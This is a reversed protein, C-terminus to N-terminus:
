EKIEGIIDAKFAHSSAGSKCLPILFNRKLYFLAMKRVEFHTSFSQSHHRRKEWSAHFSRAQKIERDSGLSLCVRLALDCSHALCVERYTVDM